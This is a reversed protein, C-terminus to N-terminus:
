DIAAFRVGSVASQSMVEVSTRQKWRHSLCRTKALGISLGADDVIKTEIDFVYWVGVKDIDVVTHQLGSAGATNLETRLEVTCRDLEDAYFTPSLWNAQATAAVMTMGAIAALLTFTKRPLHKMNM